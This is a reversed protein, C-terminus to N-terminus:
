GCMKYSEGKNAISVRGYEDYDVRALARTRARAAHDRLHAVEHRDRSEIRGWARATQGLSNVSAIHVRSERSSNQRRHPTSIVRPSGFRPKM